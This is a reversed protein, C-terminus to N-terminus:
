NVEKLWSRGRLKSRQTARPLSLGVDTARDMTGAASEAVAVPEGVWHVKEVQNGASRIWRGGVM